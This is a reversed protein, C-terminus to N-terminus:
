HGTSGEERVAEEPLDSVDDSPDYLTWFLVRDPTMLALRVAGSPLLTRSHVTPSELEMVAQGVSVMESGVSAELPMLIRINELASDSPEEEVDIVLVGESHRARVREGKLVRAIGVWAPFQRRHEELDPVRVPVQAHEQITRLADIAAAVEQLVRVPEIGSLSQIAGHRAPLHRSSLRFLNPEHFEALFAPAGSVSMVPVGTLCELQWRLQISMDRVVQEASGAEQETLTQLDARGSMDFFGDVESLVFSGGKTSLGASSRDAHCSAIVEGGPDLIELRLQADEDPTSKPVPAMHALADALTASLGGPADLEGSFPLAADPVEGYEALRRLAEAEPSGKTASFRGTITIPREDTSVACRTFVDIAFWGTERSATHSLV